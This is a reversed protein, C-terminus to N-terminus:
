IIKFEIIEMFKNDNFSESSDTLEMKIKTGDKLTHYGTLANDIYSALALGNDYNDSIATVMVICTDQYIGTKVASKSYKLREYIIFDGHVGEPAVLPYINSKVAKKIDKDALLIERVLNGIFWKQNSNYCTNYCTNNEM